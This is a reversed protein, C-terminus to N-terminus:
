RRSFDVRVRLKGSNDLLGSGASQKIDDNIILYIPGTEHRAVQHEGRAGAVFPKGNGIKGILQGERGQAGRFAYSSRNATSLGPAGDGDVPAQSPNFIWRGNATFRLVGHGSLRLRVRQWHRKAQVTTVIYVRKAGANAAGPLCVVAAAILPALSKSLM